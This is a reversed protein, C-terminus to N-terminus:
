IARATSACWRNRAWRTTLVALFRGSYLYRQNRGLPDTRRVLRGQEDHECQWKGGQADVLQVCRDQEDYSLQLRAGGPETVSLLNGREDYSNRTVHGLADTQSLLRDDEDYEALSIGGHADVTPVVLGDRHQHQTKYGLSNTVTTIRREGDYSLKHDYIGGHGWTRTCRATEDEGDYAFYFSLGNRNTEKVLLHRSYEYTFAHDLADRVESLNGQEDYAYRLM